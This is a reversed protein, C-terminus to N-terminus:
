PITRSQKTPPGRHGLVSASPMLRHAFFPSTPHPAVKEIRNRIRKLVLVITEKFMVRRDAKASGESPHRRGKSCRSCLFLSRQAAAVDCGNRLRSVSVLFRLPPRSGDAWGPSRSLSTSLVTPRWQGSCCAAPHLNCIAWVLFWVPTRSRCFPSATRQQSSDVSEDWTKGTSVRDEPPVQQHLCMQRSNPLFM